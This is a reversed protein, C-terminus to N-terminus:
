TVSVDVVLFGDVRRPVSPDEASSLIVDLPSLWHRSAVTGVVRKDVLFVMLM